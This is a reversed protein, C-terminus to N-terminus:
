FVKDYHYYDLIDKTAYDFLEGESYRIPNLFCYNDDRNYSFSKCWKTTVCIEKCEEVTGHYKHTVDKLSVGSEPLHKEVEAREFTLNKIAVFRGHISVSFLLSSILLGFGLWGTAKPNNTRVWKLQIGCALALCVIGSVILVISLPHSLFQILTNLM